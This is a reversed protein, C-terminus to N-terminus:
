YTVLHIDELLVLEHKIVSNDVKLIVFKNVFHLLQGAKESGNKMVLKVHRSRRECESLVEVIQQMEVAAFKYKENSNKFFCCECSFFQSHM